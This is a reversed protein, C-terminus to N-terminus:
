GPTNRPDGGYSDKEAIRGDQNKVVFEVQLSKALAQGSDVADSKRAHTSRPSSDGEVKVAWSNGQPHVEVDGKAM